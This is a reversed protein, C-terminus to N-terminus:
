TPRNASRERCLLAAGLAGVYQPDDLVAIRRGLADALAVVVAPNLAVGGSLAVTELLGVKRAMGSVREAVAEVLGRAIGARSAGRALLGIVESEAFVTCMSNIRSAKEAGSALASFRELDTELARAMVELFRGTGAACRDNMVFRRVSGGPGVAVAKTDQGGIDILTLEAVRQAFAGRAHCTIETIRRAAFDVLERGYGTAAVPVADLDTLGAAELARRAAKEGSIGTPALGRGLVTGAEDVLVAKTATSGVDVGAYRRPSRSAGGDEM